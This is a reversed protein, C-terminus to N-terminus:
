HTTAKTEQLAGVKKLIREWAQIDQRLDADIELGAYSNQAVDIAWILAQIERETLKIATM